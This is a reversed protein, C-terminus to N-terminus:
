ERKGKLWKLALKPGAAARLLRVTQDDLKRPTQLYRGISITKNARAPRVIHDVVVPEDLSISERHDAVIRYRHTEKPYAEDDGPNEVVEQVQWVAVLFGAQEAEQELSKGSTVLWMRDGPLLKALVQSNSHWGTVLGTTHKGYDRWYVLV